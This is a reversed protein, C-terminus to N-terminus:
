QGPKIGLEQLRRGKVFEVHGDLFVVATGTEKELLTKYYAMPQRQSAPTATTAGKGLYEVNELMWVLLKENRVYNKIEDLKEPLSGNHDEAYMFAALALHKLNNLLVVRDAEVAVQVDSKQGAFRKAYEQPLQEATVDEYIEYAKLARQSDQESQDMWEKLVEVCAQKNRRIGWIVRGYYNIERDDLITALMKGVLEKAPSRVTSLGYYVAAYRTSRDPDDLLGTLIEIARQNQSDASWVFKNGMMRACTTRVQPDSDKTCAEFADLFSEGVISMIGTTNLQKLTDLRTQSNGNLLTDKFQGLKDGYEQRVAEEHQKARKDMFAKSDMFYDKVDQAKQRVSTDDSNLYPELCAILEAKQNRCGWLIRSTVNHYDDTKMAVTAMARLIEPTKKNTVSLGFYIADGYLNREPSGSAHYMLEVAKLNQPNKGWIFLNGIWRLINGPGRYRRLGKRVIALIEDADRLDRNRDNWLQELSQGGSTSDEFYGEFDVPGFGATGGPSKSEETEVQVNTRVGRRLSVNKFAVWQYPRTQFQFEQISQPPLDKFGFDSQRINGVSGAGTAVAEHMKGDKDIAVVRHPVEKMNDSVIVYTHNDQVFPRSFHFAYDGRGIHSGGKCDCTAQTQWTDSSVGFRFTVEEMDRDIGAVIAWLNKMQRGNKDRPHHGGVHSASSDLAWRYSNKEDGLNTMRIAFERLQGHSVKVKAGISDYPPAELMSGDPRWWHKNESPHECLGVLEVMLGDSLTAKYQNSEGGSVRPKNPELVYEKKVRPDLVITDGDNAADVASRITPYTDSPVRLIEPREVEIQVDSRLNPKLAVAKFTVAKFRRYEVAIKRLDEQKVSQLRFTHQMMPKSRKISSVLSPGGGFSHLSAKEVKGEKTEYLVNMDVDDANVIADVMLGSEPEYRDPRVPCLMITSGDDLSFSELYLGVRNGTMVGARNWGKVTFPGYAAAAKIDGVQPLGKARQVNNSEVINISIGDEDPHGYPGQTGVTVDVMVSVDSPTFRLVYGYEFEWSDLHRIYRPSIRGEYLAYERESMLSGDPKWWILEEKSQGTFIGVLEVTVGNSLTAIFQEPMTETGTGTAQKQAKAMPLLVTATLIITLLGLIGLKATKPIPRSVIHKIRASLAKKSEVVGVLSLSLIPKSFAAEAVDILTNSYSKAEGGLAVLVMEDVAQERIRRVITNALWILPNYFYAIQLFTQVCNIWLDGRKIHALEHILVARLKEQSLQELIGKPMLIAPRFLSCVAPSTVNDSLRLETKWHLGLQQRCHNLLETLGNEAPQSQAILGRVFFIRQVLLATIALVGIIWLGFAIGQWTLTNLSPAISSDVTEATTAPGSRPSTVPEYPAQAIASPTIEVISDLQAVDSSQHAAPFYGGLWYGIGTPLSLMPPLVLKVFVLMWMWYRFTARVRKRILLDVILLAVILVGAQVFMRGAFDCFGAGLGNLAAILNNILYNM